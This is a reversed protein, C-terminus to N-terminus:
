EPTGHSSDHHEVGFSHTLRAMLHQYKALVDEKSAVRDATSFRETWTHNWAYAADTSRDGYASKVASRIRADHGAGTFTEFLMNMFAQYAQYVDDEFLHRYVNMTKDLERKTQIVAEPSISKWYGVWIYFCLLLNLKPAVDDYIAIRKELLKQNRWQVLDLRKLYRSVLLGVAAVSLPILIGVALKAIELSTWPNAAPAPQM